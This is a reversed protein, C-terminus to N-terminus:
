LGKKELTARIISVMRDYHSYNGRFPKDRRGKKDRMDLSTDVSYDQSKLGFISHKYRERREIGM